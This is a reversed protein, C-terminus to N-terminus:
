VHVPIIAGSEPEEASPSWPTVPESLLSPLLEEPPPTGRETRNVAIERPASIGLRVRNKRAGIIVIRIQKGIIISEQIRRTLVLM